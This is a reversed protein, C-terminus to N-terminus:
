SAQMALLEKAACWAWDQPPNDELPATERLPTQTAQATAILARVQLGRASDPGVARMFRTNRLAGLDVTKAIRLGQESRKM